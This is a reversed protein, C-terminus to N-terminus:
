GDVTMVEGAPDRDGAVAPTILDRAGVADDDAEAARRRYAAGTSRVATLVRDDRDCGAVSAARPECRRERRGATAVASCSRRRLIREELARTRVLGVRGASVAGHARVAHVAPRVLEQARRPVVDGTRGTTGVEDADVRRDRRGGILVLERQEQELVGARSRPTTPTATKLYVAIDLSHSESFVYIRPAPSSASEGAGRDNGSHDIVREGRIERDSREGVMPRPDDIGLRHGPAAVDVALPSLGPGLVRAPHLRAPQRREAPQAEHDAPDPVASPGRPRRRGGCPDAASEGSRERRSRIAKPCRPGVYM